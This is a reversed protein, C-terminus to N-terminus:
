SKSLAKEDVPPPLHTIFRGYGGNNKILNMAHHEPLRLLDEVTFPQLEDRLETYNDKDCGSILMYSANAGALEKKMHKLQGLYHCSVIPKLRFKAFRSLRESLFLEANQVQSMEDIFLNVKKRKDRDPILSARIQLALWIKTVWYTTYLDREEDTNFMDEPMKICILQNKEMEEVLDVNGEMGKKLMSEMYPNDKLTNLRSIIGEVLHLKSGKLGGDKDYEDLERLYGIYEEMNDNQAKPVKSVFSLRIKHNQLVSFVDKISGGCLFVVLSASTLFRNMRATLPTDDTNISNVLTTLQKTQRKANIYQQNADESFRVENYGLGQAKDPDDCVINLVRDQSFLSAVQSSMECNEIYDILIVCEGNNIADYSLNGILTTKGSRTPGILFLSLYQYERHSSLYAPQKNGRFTNTGIRMVGTQLDEPVATEQTEVKEIFGYKELIDRGALSIFHQAEEDGIKNVDARINYDTFEFQKRYSKAVLRNDESVTDFSQALSKANNRQRLKDSAESMVVVQTNVITANAKKRTADSIKNGGNLRDILQEFLQEGAKAEKGSLVEGVMDALYSVLGIAMRVIYGVGMKDRDVPLNNKVKRITAEYTSRWSFQSTPLFNYFIGVRDGQEMVDIVNLNSNLLDNNRRDTALSLADEKAYALQYKTAHESFQPVATAEVEKVTINSWSDSIREKIVSLHQRPIIFYFEVKQKEIYVYYSVKGNIEFSYKTGVLFERRLVKVAKAREKRVSELVNKYLSAITRAIKHTQTNKISNNPTLKLYVYDPKVVNFYDRLKISKV